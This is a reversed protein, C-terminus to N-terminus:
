GWGNDEDANTIIQDEGPILQKVSGSRRFGMAVEKYSHHAKLLIDFKKELLIKTGKAKAISEQIALTDPSCEGAWKRMEATAKSGDPSCKYDLSVKNKVSTLRSELYSVTKVIKSLFESVIDAGRLAKLQLREAHAIDIAQESQLFSLVQQVETLDFDLFEDENSSGIIDRVTINGM